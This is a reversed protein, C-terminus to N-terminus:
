VDCIDDSNGTSLVETADAVGHRSLSLHVEWCLAPGERLLPVLMLVDLSSCFLEKRSSDSTSGSSSWMDMDRLPLDVSRRIRAGPSRGSGDRSCVTLEDGM